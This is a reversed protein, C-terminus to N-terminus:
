DMIEQINVPYKIAAINHLSKTIKVFASNDTEPHWSLIIQTFLSIQSHLEFVGNKKTWKTSIGTSYAHLLRGVGIHQDVSCALNM